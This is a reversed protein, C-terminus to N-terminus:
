KHPFLILGSENVGISVCLSQQHAGYKRLARANQNLRLNVSAFSYLEIIFLHRLKEM